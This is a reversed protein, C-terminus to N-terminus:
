IIDKEQQQSGPIHTTLMFNAIIPFNGRRIKEREAEVESAQRISYIADSV